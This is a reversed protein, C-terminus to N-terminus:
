GNNWDMPKVNAYLIHQRKCIPCNVYTTVNVMQLSTGLHDGFIADNQIDDADFEFVCGCPCMINRSIGYEIIKM